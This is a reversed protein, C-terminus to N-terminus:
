LSLATNIWILVLLHGINRFLILVKLWLWLILEEDCRATSVLSLYKASRHDDFWLEILFPLLECSPELLSVTARYWCLVKIHCLAQTVSLHVVAKMPEFHSLSVDQQELINGM